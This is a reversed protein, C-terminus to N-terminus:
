MQALFPLDVEAVPALSSWPIRSPHCSRDSTKLKWVKLFHKNIIYSNGPSFNLRCGGVYFM